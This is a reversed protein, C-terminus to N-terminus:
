NGEKFLIVIPNFCVHSIVWHIDFTAPPSVVQISTKIGTFFFLGSIDGLSGEEEEEGQFIWVCECACVCVCVVYVCVCHGGKKKEEEPPPHRNKAARPEQTIGFSHRSSVFTNCCLFGAVPDVLRAVSWSPLSEVPASSSSFFSFFRSVNKSQALALAFVKV